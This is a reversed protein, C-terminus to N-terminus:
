STGTISRRGRMKRDKNEEEPAIALGLIIEWSAGAGIDIKEGQKEMEPGQIMRQRHAEQKRERERRKCYGTKIQIRSQQIPTITKIKKSKADTTVVKINKDTIRITNTFNVIEYHLRKLTVIYSGKFTSTIDEM